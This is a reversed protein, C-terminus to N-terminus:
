QRPLLRDLQRLLHRQDEFVDRWTFRRLRDGRDHAERDRQRDREWVLRTNHFRFSDLEVTLRHAPWRCDVVHAGEPRNFRPLPFGHLCLLARFGRELRSLLLPTDGAVVARLVGANPATRRADLVALVADPDVNFRVHAEHHVRALQSMPLDAALDVLLRPVTLVPLGQWVRVEDDGLRRVRHVIVGRVRRNAMVVVEPPPPEGRLLGLVWTACRGSLAAGDGCALVAGAYRALASPARHGVRYVGRFEPHLTGAAVRRGVGSRGVGVALLQGRTIIGHQGSAVRAIARGLSGHQARM